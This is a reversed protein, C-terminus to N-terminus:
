EGNGFMAINGVHGIYVVLDSFIHYLVTNCYALFHYDKQLIFVHNTTKVAKFWVMKIIQVVNMGMNRM